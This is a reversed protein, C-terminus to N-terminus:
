RITVVGSAPQLVLHNSLILVGEDYLGTTVYVTSGAPANTDAQGIRSFPMTLTGSSGPTSSPRVYRPRLGTGYADRLDQADLASIMDRQGIASQQSQNPPLVLITPCCVLTCATFACQDYHMLSDFDYPTSTAIWDTANYRDFNHAAGSAINGFNIMVYSDRDWRSQEHWFGLAHFLEHAMIFKFNWNFIEVVQGASSMGVTASNTSGDQIHVYNADHVGPTRPVFAVRAGLRLCEEMAELMLLRNVMTVNADFEYYVVGDTWLSPAGRDIGPDLIQCDALPRQQVQAWQRILSSGLSLGPGRTAAPTVGRASIQNTAASPPAQGSPAQAAASGITAMIALVVRAQAPGPSTLWRLAQNFKM